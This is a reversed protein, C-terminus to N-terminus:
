ILQEYICLHKWKENQEYWYDFDEASYCWVFSGGVFDDNKLKKLHNILGNEKETCYFNGSAYFNHKFRYYLGEDKLFRLFRAIIREKNDDMVIVTM